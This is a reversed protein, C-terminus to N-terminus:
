KGNKDESQKTQLAQKLEEIFERETYGALNVSIKDIIEMIEKDRKRIAEKILRNVEREDFYTEHKNM